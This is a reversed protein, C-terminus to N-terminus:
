PAESNLFRKAVSEQTKCVEQASSSSCPDRERYVAQKISVVIWGSGDHTGDDVKEDRCAYKQEVDNEPDEQRSLVM